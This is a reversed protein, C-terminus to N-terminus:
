KSSKVSGDVWEGREEDGDGSVKGGAGVGRLVGEARMREEVREEIRDEVRGARWADVAKCACGVLGVWVGWLVGQLAMEAYCLRRWAGIQPISSENCVVIITNLSLAVAYLCCVILSQVLAYVPHFHTRSLLAHTTLVSLIDPILALGLRLFFDAATEDSDYEVTSHWSNYWKRFLVTETIALITFATLVVIRLLDLVFFWRQPGHWRPDRPTLLTKM